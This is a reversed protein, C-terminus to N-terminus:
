CDAEDDVGNTPSPSRSLEHGMWERWQDILNLIDYEAGCEPCIGEPPLGTLRYGCYICMRYHLRRLKRRMRRRQLIILILGLLTCLPIAISVWPDAKPPSNGTVDLFIVTLVILLAVFLVRRRELWVVRPMGFRTTHRFGGPTAPPRARPSM